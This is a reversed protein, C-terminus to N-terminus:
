LEPSTWYLFYKPFHEVGIHFLTMNLLHLMGFLLPFTQNRSPGPMEWCWAGDWVEGGVREEKQRM